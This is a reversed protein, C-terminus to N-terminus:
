RAASRERDLGRLDIGWSLPIAQPNFCVKDDCAEYGLTAEITLSKVDKLAAAAQASPDVMLDQIVRFPKQYVPVDENLPAFFYDETKPFEADRVILGPLPKIELQIPKYGSAGPGYVHVRDEPVVDLVISFHTGPAAIRDTLFTTVTLHPATVKTASANVAGGVKVLV